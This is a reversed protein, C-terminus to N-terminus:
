RRCILAPQLHTGIIKLLAQFSSIPRILIRLVQVIEKREEVKHNIEALM